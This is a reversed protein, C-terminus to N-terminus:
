EAPQELQTIHALINARDPSDAYSEVYECLLEDIKKMNALDPEAQALELLFPYFEPNCKLGNIMNGYLIGRHWDTQEFWWGNTALERMLPLAEAPRDAIYLGVGNSRIISDKSLASARAIEVLNTTPYFTYLIILSGRINYQKDENDSLLAKRLTAELAMSMREQSISYESALEKLLTYADKSIRVNILHCICVSNWEEDRDDDWRCTCASDNSFIDSVREHLTEDDMTGKPKIGEYSEQAYRENIIKLRLDIVQLAIELLCPLGTRYRVGEDKSANALHQEERFIAGLTAAIREHPISHESVFENILRKRPNEWNNLRDEPCVCSSDKRFPDYGCPCVPPDSVLIGYIKKYLTEDDISAKQETDKKCSCLFIMSIVLFLILTLPNKM